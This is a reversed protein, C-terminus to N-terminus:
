PRIALIAVDILGVLTGLGGAKLAGKLINTPLFVIDDAQLIPDPDKGHEIRKIDVKVVKRELGVTRIIRLDEYRGEFGAGGSLATAQMLTLPTNQDLPIAGQKAFAGVVYVVGVKSIVILDHPLIVINAARVRAPDTGINVVIPDALGQRFITIVHSATSPWASGGGLVGSAINANVTEGGAAGPTASALVDFLRRVGILPVVAHIEGTVTAFQNVAATLEVTVQPNKYMGAAILRQAILNEVEEVTLGEVPVVGVLPIQITGDATVKIVPAFDTAGFVHITLVDGFGLRIDRETAKLLAPDDTPVQVTPPQTPLSLSPGTFQGFCPQLATGVFCVGAAFGSLGIQRWAQRGSIGRLFVRSGMMPQGEEEAREQDARKACGM